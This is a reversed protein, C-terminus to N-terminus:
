RRSPAKDGRRFRTELCRRSRSTGRARTTCWTSLSFPMSLSTWRALPLPKGWSSSSLQRTAYRRTNAHTELQEVQCRVLDRMACSERGWSDLKLTYATGGAISTETVGVGTGGDNGVPRVCGYSAAGSDQFCYWGGSAKRLSTMLSASLFFYLSEEASGILRKVVSAGPVTVGTPVSFVQYGLPYKTSPNSDAGGVGGIGLRDAFSAKFVAGMWVNQRAIATFKCDEAFNTTGLVYSPTVHSQRFLGYQIGNTGPYTYNLFYCIGAKISGHVTGDRRCVSRGRSDWSPVYDSQRGKRFSEWMFSSTKSAAIHSLQSAPRQRTAFRRPTPTPQTHSHNLTANSRSEERCQGM